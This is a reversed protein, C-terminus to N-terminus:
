LRTKAALIPIPQAAGPELALWKQDSRILFGAGFGGASRTQCFGGRSTVPLNRLDMRVGALQGVTGPKDMNRSKSRSKSRSAQQSSLAVLALALFGYIQLVVSGL